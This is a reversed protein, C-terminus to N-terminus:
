KTDDIVTMNRRNNKDGVEFYGYVQYDPYNGSGYDKGEYTYRFFTTSIRYKGSTLGDTYPTLHYTHWITDNSNLILGEATFAYNIDTDKSVTKWSGNVKEELVFMQGFSMNDLLTNYWKVRVNTTGVEYTEYETEIWVGDLEDIGNRETNSELEDSSQYIGIGSCGLMLFCILGIILFAIYKKIFVMNTGVKM